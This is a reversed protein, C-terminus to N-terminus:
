MKGEGRCEASCSRMSAGRSIDQCISEFLILLLLLRETKRVRAQHNGPPRMQPLTQLAVRTHPHHRRTTRAMEQGTKCLLTSPQAFLPLQCRRALFQTRQTNRRFWSPDCEVQEFPTSAAFSGGSMVAQLAVDRRAACPPRRFLVLYCHAAKWAINSILNIEDFM